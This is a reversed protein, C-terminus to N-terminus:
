RSRWDGRGRGTGQRGIARLCKGLLPLHLSVGDVGMKDRASNVECDTLEQCVPTIRCGNPPIIARARLRCEGGSEIHLIVGRLVGHLERASVIEEVSLNRIDSLAMTSTGPVFMSEM